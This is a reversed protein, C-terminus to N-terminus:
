SLPTALRKGGRPPFVSREAKLLVLISGSATADRLQELGGIFAGRVFVAPFTLMPYRLATKLTARVLPDKVYIRQYQLGAGDLV